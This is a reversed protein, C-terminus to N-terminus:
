GKKYKHHKIVLREQVQESVVMDGKRMAEAEDRTSYVTGYVVRRGPKREELIYTTVTEIITERTFIHSATERIIEGKM